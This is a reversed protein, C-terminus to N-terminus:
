RSRWDRGGGAGDAPGSHGGSAEPRLRCRFVAVVAAPLRCALPSLIARPLTARSGWCSRSGPWSPCQPCPLRCSRPWRLRPRPWPWRRPGALGVGVGAGIAGAEIAGGRVALGGVAQGELTAPGARADVRVVLDGPLAPGGADGVLAALADELLLVDFDGLEPALEGGVDHDALVEAAVEARRLALGADALEDVADDVRDGAQARSGASSRSGRPGRLGELGLQGM